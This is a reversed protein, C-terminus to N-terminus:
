EKLGRALRSSRGAYGMATMALREKVWPLKDVWALAKNRLVVLPLFDNSFLRVLTDTANITTKWDDSRQDIFQQMFQDSGLFNMDCESSKQISRIFDFLAAIDRLGINFGQGAIPHLTHASNGILLVRNRYLQDPLHLALPYQNREGVKTISGLRYGFQQQLQAIFTQDDYGMVTDVNQESQCWVLSMRKRTLPLLALPGNATFREFARNNHPKETSINAIVAHQEYSERKVTLELMKAISSYTGDAALMMKASFTQQKDLASKVTVSLLEDTSGLQEVHSIKFPCFLEINDCAAIAQWLVPGTQDLPIVAGLQDVPYDSANIRTFGFHGKDSVHIQEIPCSLASLKSWLGLSKLISISADSLAVSRQDFSPSTDLSPEIPEVLAISLDLKALALAATAGVMGGGAIIIDFRKEM